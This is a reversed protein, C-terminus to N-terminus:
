ALELLDTAITDVERLEKTHATELMAISSSFM